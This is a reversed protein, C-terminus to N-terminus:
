DPLGLCGDADLEEQITFGADDGSELAAIRAADEVELAGYINIERTSNLIDCYREAEDATGFGYLSQSNYARFAFWKESNDNM